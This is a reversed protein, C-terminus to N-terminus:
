RLRYRGIAPVAAAPRPASRLGDRSRVLRLVGDGDGSEEDRRLQVELQALISIRTEIGARAVISRVHSQLGPVVQRDEQGRHTPDGLDVYGAFFQAAALRDRQLHERGGALPLARARFVAAPHALGRVDM